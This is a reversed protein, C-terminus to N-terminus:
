LEGKRGGIIWQIGGYLIEQFGKLGKTQKVGASSGGSLPFVKRGGMWTEKVVIDKLSKGTKDAWIDQDIVIWDAWNGVEIAGATGEKLWGYAANRTFGLVAQEVTLSEEPHWGQPGAPSTGTHPNLRTVAAYMGEFPSPPEVPFDSGLVPGPYKSTNATSETPFLSAMRYASRSTRDEGLRDLAYAMDSTAHTPQASNSRKCICYSNRRVQISPIIGLKAIRKQDDPHQEM